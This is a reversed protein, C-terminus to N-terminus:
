PLCIAFCQGHSSYLFQQTIYILSPAYALSAQNNLDLQISVWKKLLAIWSQSWSSHLGLNMALESVAKYHWIPSIWRNLMCVRLLPYKRDGKPCFNVQSCMTHTNARMHLGGHVNNQIVDKTHVHSPCVGGTLRDCWMKGSVISTQSESLSGWYHCMCSTCRDFLKRCLHEHPVGRYRVGNPGLMKDM